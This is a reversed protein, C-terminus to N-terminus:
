KRLNGAFCEFVKAFSTKRFETKMSRPNYYHYIGDALMFVLNQSAHGKPSGTADLLLMARVKNQYFQDPTSVETLWIFKPMAIKLLAKRQGDNFSNLHAIHERFTRSSTLLTRVVCRDVNPILKTIMQKSEGIAMDADMYVKNYLPAIFQCIKMKALDPRKLRVYRNCPDSLSDSQYCPFNDDNFIFKSNAVTDNWSFITKGNVTQSSKVVVHKDIEERGECVVAHGNGNGTLAIALPVGSEIYCALIENFHAQQNSTSNQPLGYIKAGLGFERLAVSVQNYTLGRSPLQREFVFPTLIKEIESSVTPHYCSYKNGFYEMLMWITTQACTMTESDQSAHPFGNAELKIGYCSADIRAKSILMPQAVKMAKPSIVNRGICKQQPRLVLFGLYNEKINETDDLEFDANIGTDFFSLRVCNRNYARLKTSFYDYYSDRYVRDVYSSEKVVFIDSRLEKLFRKIQKKIADSEVVSMGYVSMEAVLGNLELGDTRLNTIPILVSSM